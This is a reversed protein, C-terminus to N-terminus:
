KIYQQYISPTLFKVEIRGSVKNIFDSLMGGVNCNIEGFQKRHRNNGFESDFYNDAVTESYGDCGALTIKKVGAINLLSLLMMVSNDYM